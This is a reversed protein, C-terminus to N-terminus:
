KIDPIPTLNTHNVKLRPYGLFTQKITKNKESYVFFGGCGPCKYEIGDPTDEVKEGTRFMRTGCEPCRLYCRSM